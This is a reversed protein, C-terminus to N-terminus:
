DAKAIAAEPATGREFRPRMTAAADRDPVGLAILAGVMAFAAAALFAARYAALHPLAAGMADHGLPGVATLVTSLV